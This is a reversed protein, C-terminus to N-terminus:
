IALAPSISPSLTAPHPSYVLERELLKMVTQRAQDPALGETTLAGIMDAGHFPEATQALLLAASALPSPPITISEGGRLRTSIKEIRSEKWISRYEVEFTVEPHVCLVLDDLAEAKPLERLRNDPKCLYLELKGPRRIALSLKFRELDSQNTLRSSLQESPLCLEPNWDSPNSWCLFKLGSSRILEFLSDIDYSRECPHLYRDVFEVDDAENAAKWTADDPDFVALERILERAIALREVLPDSECTIAKVARAVRQTPARHGYVMLALIGHPALREGLAKLAARPDTLHHIVGSSHIVDFKEEALDLGELDTELFRVNALKRRQCEIQAEGLAVRNLDVGLFEVDSQVSAAGILGLARGCGADLVRLCGGTPRSLEGLSLVYRVDFGVRIAPSGSPYPFLEYLERVRRTTENM